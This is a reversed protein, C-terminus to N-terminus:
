AHDLIAARKMEVTNAPKTQMRTQLLIKNLMLHIHLNPSRDTVLWMLAAESYGAVRRYASIFLPM